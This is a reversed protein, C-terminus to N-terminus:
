RAVWIKLTTHEGDQWPWFMALVTGDGEDKRFLTQGKEIGGFRQTLAADEGSPQAGAPKSPPGFKEEIIKIWEAIERNYVVVECYDESEKRKEHIGLAGAKVLLDKIM